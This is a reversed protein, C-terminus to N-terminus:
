RSGRVLAVGLVVAAVGMLRLTSVRHVDGGFAGVHDLILAGLLTGATLSCAFLAIGLRPVVFAASVVFAFGLLGTAAYYASLGNLSLALAAAALVAVLAFLTVSRFPAPLQPPDHSVSQVALLLALVALTALMSLWTAESPGRLRGLSGLMSTQLASALGIGVAIAIFTLQSM